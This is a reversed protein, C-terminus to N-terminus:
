TLHVRLTVSAFSLNDWQNEVFITTLRLNVRQADRTVTLLPSGNM